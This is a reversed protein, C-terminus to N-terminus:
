ANEKNKRLIWEKLHNFLHVSLVITTFVVCGTTYFFGLFTYFPETSM